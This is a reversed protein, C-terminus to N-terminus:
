KRRRIAEKSPDGGQGAAGEASKKRWEAATGPRAAAESLQAM